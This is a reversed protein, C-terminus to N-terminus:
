RKRVYGVVLVGLAIGVLLSGLLVRNPGGVTAPRWPPPAGNGTPSADTWVDSSRDDMEELEEETGGAGCGGCALLGRERATRNSYVLEGECRACAMGAALPRILDYLRGKSLDLSDAIENVSRSSEWYMRNAREEIRGSGPNSAIM